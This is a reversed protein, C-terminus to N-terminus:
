IKDANFGSGNSCSHLGPDAHRSESEIQWRCTFCLHNRQSEHFTVPFEVPPRWKSRLKVEPTLSPEALIRCSGMPILPVFNHVCVRCREPGGSNPLACPNGSDTTGDTADSSAIYCQHMLRRERATSPHFIPGELNCMWGTLWYYSYSIRSVRNLEIGVKSM